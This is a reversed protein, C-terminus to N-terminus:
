RGELNRRDEAEEVLCRIDSLVWDEEVKELATMEDQSRRMKWDAGKELLLRAVETKEEEIARLLPLGCSDYGMTLFHNREDACGGLELIHIIMELSEGKVAAHVLSGSSFIARYEILRDFSEINGSQGV